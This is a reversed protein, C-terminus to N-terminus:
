SKSSVGTAKADKYYIASSGEAVYKDYDDSSYDNDSYILAEVIFNKVDAVVVEGHLSAGKVTIEIKLNAVDNNQTNAEFISNIGTLTCNKIEVKIPLETTHQVIAIAAGDTTTGNGNATSKAPTGNSIINAGGEVVLEGARIEIGSETEATVTGGSVTLKGFQPNYIGTGDGTVNCNTLTIYTYKCDSSGNGSVGIEKGYFTVDTANFTTTISENSNGYITAGWGNTASYSGGNVNITRNTEAM